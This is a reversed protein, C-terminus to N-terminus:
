RIHMAVIKIRSSVRQMLLEVLSEEYMVPRKVGPHFGIRSEVQDILIMLVLNGIVETM